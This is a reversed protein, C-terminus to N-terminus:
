AAADPPILRATTWAAGWAGFLAGLLGFLILVSANVAAMAGATVAQGVATAVLFGAVAGLFGAVASAVGRLQIGLHYRTEHRLRWARATGGMTALTAGGVTVWFGPLFHGYGGYVELSRLYIALGGEASRLTALAVVGIILPAAVALAHRAETLRESWAVAFLLIGLELTFIGDGAHQFSSETYWGRYPTWAEIWDLFSGVVLLAAATLLVVRYRDRLAPHIREVGTRKPTPTWRKDYM